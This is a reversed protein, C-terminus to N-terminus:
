DWPGCSWERCRSWMDNNLRCTIVNMGEVHNLKDEWVLARQSQEQTNEGHSRLGKQCKNKFASQPHFCSRHVDGHCSLDCTRGKFVRTNTDEEEKKKSVNFIRCTMKLSTSTSRHNSLSVRAGATDRKRHIKLKGDFHGTKRLCTPTPDLRDVWM